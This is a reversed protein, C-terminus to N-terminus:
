CSDEDHCTGLRVWAYLALGSSAAAHNLGLDRSMSQEGISYASANLATMGTFFIAVTLIARKRMKSFFFPNETSNPEFDVWIVSRGTSDKEGGSDDSPDAPLNVAQERTLRGYSCGPPLPPGRTPTKLGDPLATPLPVAPLNTSSITLESDRSTLHSM